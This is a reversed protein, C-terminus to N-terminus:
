SILRVVYPSMGSYRVATIRVTAGSHPAEIMQGDGLYIAVHNEANPGYFILDGRQMQSPDVKTGRQYQYGTYHPLSIGVGAFAYVVLGSCDFGVTNYDGYSDAVGGDRIGLTPGNADGGGWAYPVGLQSEARAIVTEIREAASASTSSASSDTSVGSASSTTAATTSSPSSTATTATGGGASGSSTSRATETTDTADASVSTSYTEAPVSATTTPPTQSTTGTTGTTNAGSVATGPNQLAAVTTAAASEDSPYPNDLSTHDPQSEGVKEAAAVAAADAAAKEAAERQAAEEEAQRQREEEEAQARQAELTAANGRAAALDSEAAEQEAQLTEREASLEELQSLTNDLADRAAQEAETADAERSEAVGRAERLASEQNANETRTQDLQDITAQQEAASIRIYTQRDLADDASSAGALLAASSAGRRYATRALEDLQAQAESLDLQTGDLLERASIVGQRAQEAVAQADHLDVLAKNVAEQLGSMTLDLEAIRAENSTVLQALDSLRQTGEAVAAHASELEEDSPNDVAIAPVSTAFVVGCTLSAVFTKILRRFPWRPTTGTTVM